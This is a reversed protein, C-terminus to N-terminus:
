YVMCWSGWIYGYGCEKLTLQQAPLVLIATVYGKLWLSIKFVINRRRFGDVRLIWPFTVVPSKASPTYVTNVDHAAWRIFDCLRRMQGPICKASLSINKATTWMSQANLISGTKSSCSTRSVCSPAKLSWKVDLCSIFITGRMSFTPWANSSREYTRSTPWFLKTYLKTHYRSM